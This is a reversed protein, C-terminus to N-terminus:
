AGAAEGDQAISLYLFQDPHRLARWLELVPADTAVAIGHAVVSTQTAAEGSVAVGFEALMQAVARSCARSFLSFLPVIFFSARTARVERLTRARGPM